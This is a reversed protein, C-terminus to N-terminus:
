LTLLVQKIDTSSCFVWQCPPGAVFHNASIAGLCSINNNQWHRQGRYQM